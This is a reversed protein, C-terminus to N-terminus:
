TRDPDVVMFERLLPYRRWFREIGIRLYKKAFAVPEACDYKELLAKRGWEFNDVLTGDLFGTTGAYWDEALAPHAEQIALITQEQAFFRGIEGHDYDTLKWGTGFSFQESHDMRCTRNKEWYWWYTVFPFVYLDPIEVRERMPLAQLLGLLRCWEVRDVRWTSMRPLRTKGAYESAAELLADRYDIRRRDLASFSAALKERLRGEAVDGCFDEVGLNWGMDLNLIHLLRALNDRTPSRQGKLWTRVASGSLEARRSLSKRGLDSADVALQLLEHHFNDLGSPMASDERTRM